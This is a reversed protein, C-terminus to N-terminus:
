EVPAATALTALSTSPRRARTTGCPPGTTVRGSTSLPWSFKEIATLTTVAKALWPLAINLPLGCFFTRTTATSRVSRRPMKAPLSEFIAETASRLPLFIEEPKALCRMWPRNQRARSFM